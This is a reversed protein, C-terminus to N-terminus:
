SRHPTLLSIEKLLVSFHQYLSHIVAQMQGVMQSRTQLDDAYYVGENTFLVSNKVAKQDYNFIFSLWKQKMDELLCVSSHPNFSPENLMYWVVFPFKNENTREWCARVTNYKHVLFVHKGKPTLTAFGLTAGLLGTGLAVGKNWSSNSIYAGAIASAAGVVISAVTLTNSKHSNKNALMEEIQDLQEGESDFIGAVADIENMSLMVKNQVRNNLALYHQISQPTTDQKLRVIERLTSDISIAHSLLISQKSLTPMLTKNELLVSDANFSINKADDKTTTQPMVINTNLTFVQQSSCSSVLQLFVLAFVFTSFFTNRKYM